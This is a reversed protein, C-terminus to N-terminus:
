NPTLTPKCPKWGSGTWLKRCPVPRECATSRRGLRRRDDAFTGGALLRRDFRRRKGSGAAAAGALRGRRAYFDTSPSFWWLRLKREVPVFGHDSLAVLTAAPDSSIADRIKGIARDASELATLAEPSAPGFTHAQSDYWVFHVMLLDPQYHNWLYLAAAERLQDSRRQRSNANADPSSGCLARSHRLACANRFGPPPDAVAPNWIEPINHDIPAGVSVPWSLAATRRRSARAVDWLAPAKLM